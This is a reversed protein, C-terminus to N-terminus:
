IGYWFTFELLRGCRGCEWRTSQGGHIPVYRWITSGCRCIPKTPKEPANQAAVLHAPAPIDAWCVQTARLSEVANLPFQPDGELLRLAAQWIAAANSQDIGPAESKPRLFALMDGKHAKLRDLLNPMLADQPADITLGGEGALALRIGNAECDALRDAFISTVHSM